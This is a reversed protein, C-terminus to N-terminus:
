FIKFLIAAFITFDPMHSRIFTSISSTALKLHTKVSEKSISLRDAIEKYTLREHRSLLYVEKRRPPLNDIADDILSSFNSQDTEVAVKLINEKEWDRKQLTEKMQKKLVDFSQNRSVVILYHKFNEVEGLTERTMWIKLFVDQVIEETLIKSETIRFVYGALLQHWHLFLHRFALEDGQSVQLLIDKEVYPLQDGM